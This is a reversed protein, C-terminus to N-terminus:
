VLKFVPVTGSGDALTEFAVEVERGAEIQDADADADLDVINSQLRVGEALDIQALVLPLRGQHWPHYPRHLVAHSFITGRGSADRWQMASSGCAQCRTRLPFAWTGCARCRQLRLKGERAGAFFPAAGVAAASAGPKSVGPKSVAATEAAAVPLWAEETM